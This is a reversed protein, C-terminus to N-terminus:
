GQKYLNHDRTKITKMVTVIWGIADTTQQETKVKDPSAGPKHLSLAQM